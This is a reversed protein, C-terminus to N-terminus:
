SPIVDINRGYLGSINEKKMELQMDYSAFILGCGTCKENRCEPTVRDRDPELVAIVKGFSINKGAKVIKVEAKEGPLLGSCVLKTGEIETVSEFLSNLPGAEIVATQNKELSM